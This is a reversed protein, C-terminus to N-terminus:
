GSLLFKLGYSLGVVVFGWSLTLSNLTSYFHLTHLHGSAGTFVHSPSAPLLCSSISHFLCTHSQHHAPPLLLEAVHCMQIISSHFGTLSTHHLYNQCVHCCHGHQSHPSQCALWWSADCYESKETSLVIKEQFLSTRPFNFLCLMWM